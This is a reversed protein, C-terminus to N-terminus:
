RTCIGGFTLNSTSLESVEDAEVLVYFTAGQVMWTQVCIGM